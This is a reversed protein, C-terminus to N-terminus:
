DSNKKSQGLVTSAMCAVYLLLTTKVLTLCLNMLMVRRKQLCGDPSRIDMQVFKYAKWIPPITKGSWHDNNWPENDYYCKTQYTKDGYPKHNGWLWALDEGHQGCVWPYLLVFGVGEGENGLDTTDPLGMNDWWPKPIGGVGIADPWNGGGWTMMGAWYNEYVKGSGPHTFAKLSAILRLKHVDFHVLFLLSLERSVNVATSKGGEKANM